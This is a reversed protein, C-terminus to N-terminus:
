MLRSRDQRRRYFVFAIIAVVVASSGAILAAEAGSGMGSSNATTTTAVAQGNGSTSGQSGTSSGSSGQTTSSGSSASTATYSTGSSSLTVTASQVWKVQGTAGAQAYCGIVFEVKAGDAVRAYHLIQAMTGDLTGTFATTVTYVAPSIRSLFAGHASFLAAQASQRYGVPCGETTSWSPTLTLAGTAPHFILEGPQSGVSALASGASTVAIGTTVAIATLSLVARRIAKAPRWRATVGRVASSANQTVSMAPFSVALFSFRTCVLPSFYFFTGLHCCRQAVYLSLRGRNGNTGSRV